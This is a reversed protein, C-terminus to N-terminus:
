REDILGGLKALRDIVDAADGEPYGLDQCRCLIEIAFRWAREPELVLCDGPMVLHQFRLYVVRDGRRPPDLRFAPPGQNM